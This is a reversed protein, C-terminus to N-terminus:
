RKLAPSRHARTEARTRARDMLVAVKSRPEASPDPGWAALRDAYVLRVALRQRIGEDAAAFFEKRLQENSLVSVAFYLLSFVALFCAMRTWPESVWSQDYFSPYDDPDANDGYIWNKLLDDSVTRRGVFLFV